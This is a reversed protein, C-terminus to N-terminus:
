SNYLTILIARQYYTARNQTKIQIASLIIGYLARQTFICIVNLHMM